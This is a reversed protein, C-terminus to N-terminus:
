TKKEAFSFFAECKQLAKKFYKAIV